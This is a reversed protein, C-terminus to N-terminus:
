LLWDVTRLQVCSRPIQFTGQLVPVHLTSKSNNIDCTETPTHTTKLAGM